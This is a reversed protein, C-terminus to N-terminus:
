NNTWVKMEELVLQLFLNLCILLTLSFFFSFPRIIAQSSKINKITWRERNLTAGHSHSSGTIPLVAEKKNKGNNIIYHKEVIYM